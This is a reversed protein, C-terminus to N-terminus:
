HAIEFPFPLEDDPADLSTVTEVLAGPPGQHLLSQLEEVASAPGSAAIEVDGSPRNRVWGRLNLRQGHGRLWWRFGVGQVHGAVRWHGAINPKEEPM